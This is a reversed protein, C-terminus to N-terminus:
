IFRFRHFTVPKHVALYNFAYDIPAVQHFTPTHVLPISLNALCYGVIMDEAQDIRECDCMELMQPIASPSIVLGAGGTLYNF